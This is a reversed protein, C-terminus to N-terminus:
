VGLLRTVMRRAVEETEDVALEVHQEKFYRGEEENHARVLIRASPQIQQVLEVVRRVEFPDPLTILVAIAKDVQAEKLITEDTADGAIAHCGANRLDTIRERNTDIMVIELPVNEMMQMAHTGVRGCGIIIVVHTGLSQTEAVDMHALNDQEIKGDEWHTSLWHICARMLFPNLAISFLAAAIVMDRAENSIIGVSAGLAMLIFSFEGIQALGTAALLAKRKPYGFFVVILFTILPKLVLIIGIVTLLDLPRDLVITPNFLMGVSVFFLVAFADQFPLVRNAVEHNLDSERIMMGAFFAGLALSVGFLIAAIFAVGMAMSFAALTFLERSGTRTVAALLWPLLRKGVVFMLVAFLAVKGLAIALQLGIDTHEVPGSGTSALSPILVIALVMAIDEVILWGITIKATVTQLLLHEELTRLLVVTSAVALALGFVIGSSPQWGWFHTIGIAALTIIVIRTIAGGTAIKRVEMFDQISFHLGVGFLLLVIGIESLQEAIHLDAVFGPTFPGIAIGALIYGVLPSFRFKAALLGCIFALSLGIAITSVLPLENLVNM